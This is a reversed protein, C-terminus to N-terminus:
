EEEQEDEEGWEEIIQSDSYREVGLLSKWNLWPYRTGGAVIKECNAGFTRGDALIVHFYYSIGPWDPFHLVVPLRMYIKEIVEVIADKRIKEVRESLFLEAAHNGVWWAEAAEGQIINAEWLKMAYEGVIARLRRMILEDSLKKAKRKRRLYEDLPVSLNHKEKGVIIYVARLERRGGIEDSKRSM